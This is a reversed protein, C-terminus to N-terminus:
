ETVETVPLLFAKVGEQGFKKKLERVCTLLQRGQVQEACVFLVNNKGPWIDNGLHTGSSSGKGFAQTLKTYNQLACGSLTEMVEDDLAENYVIIAMANM